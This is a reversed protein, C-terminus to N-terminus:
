RTAPELGKSRILAANDPSSFAAILARAEAPHKAAAGIGAAYTTYNQIEKPLPGVLV